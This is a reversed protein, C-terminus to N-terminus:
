LKQKKDTTKNIDCNRSNVNLRKTRKEGEELEEHAVIKIKIALRAIKNEHSRTVNAGINETVDAGTANGDNGSANSTEKDDNKTQKGCYRYRRFRPPGNLVAFNAHLYPDIYNFMGDLIASLLFIIMEKVIKDKFSPNEYPSKEKSCRECRQGFQRVAVM